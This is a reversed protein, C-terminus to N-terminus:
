PKYEPAKTQRYAPQVELASKNSRVDRDGPFALTASFAREGPGVGGGVADRYAAQQPTEFGSKAQAVEPPNGATVVPPAPSAKLRASLQETPPPIGIVTPQRSSSRPFNRIPDVPTLNASSMPRPDIGPTSGHVPPQAAAAPKRPSAIAPLTVRTDDARMVPGGGPVAPPKSPARAFTPSDTGGASAAGVTTGLAQNRRHIYVVERLMERFQDRESRQSVVEDQLDDVRRALDKAAENLAVKDAKQAVVHLDGKARLAEVFDRSSVKDQDMAAVRADLAAVLAPTQTDSHQKILDVVREPTTRQKIEQRLDLFLQEAEVVQQQRAGGLRSGMDELLQQRFLVFAPSKLLHQTQPGAALGALAAEADVARVTTTHDIPIPKGNVLGDADSAANPRAGHNSNPQGLKPSDAHTPALSTAGTGARSSVLHKIKAMAPSPANPDYEFFPAVQAHITLVRADIDKSFDALHAKLREYDDAAGRLREETRDRDHQIRDRTQEAYGRFQDHTAFQLLEKDLRAAHDKITKTLASSEKELQHRAYEQMRAERTDLEKELSGKAWKLVWDEVTKEFIEATRKGNPGELRAVQVELAKLQERFATTTANFQGMAVMQAQHQQVVRLGSDHASISKGHRENVEATESQFGALAGRLYKVDDMLTAIHRSFKLMERGMLHLHDELGRSNFSLSVDFLKAPPDYESRAQM